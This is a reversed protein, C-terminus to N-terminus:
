ENVSGLYDEALGALESGDCFNGVIEPFKVGPRIEGSPLLAGGAL